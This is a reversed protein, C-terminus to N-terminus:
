VELAANMAHTLAALLAQIAELGGSNINKYVAQESIDLEEAIAGVKWGKILLNLIVLRNAHWREMLHSLVQLAGTALAQQGDPLGGVHCFDDSDKMESMGERATYFAPGDMGLAQQRNLKTTIAGVAVSFRVRVPHLAARITLIDTFVQDARHFVAQFEDGLTLTYPSILTSSNENLEGLTM